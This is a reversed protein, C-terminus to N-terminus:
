TDIIIEPDDTSSDAMIVTYHYQGVAADKSVRAEIRWASGTQTADLVTKEPNEFPSKRFRLTLQHPSEFTISEDHHLKLKKPNDIAAGNSTAHYYFDRPNPGHEVNMHVHRPQTKATKPGM